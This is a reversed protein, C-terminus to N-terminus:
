DSLDSARFIREPSVTEGDFQLYSVVERTKADSIAVYRGKGRAYVVGDSDKIEGEAEWIRRNGAGAKGSVTVELGIPLPKLYQVNLEISVCFRRNVLSPAWGMTEDLLAAMVGGHTVGHYGMQELRPTFRTFVTDGDAWFRVKLGSPNQDGCVFCTKSNPLKELVSRVRNICCMM